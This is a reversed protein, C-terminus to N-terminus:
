SVTLLLYQLEGLRAFDGAPGLILLFLENLAHVQESAIPFLDSVMDAGFCETLDNSASRSYQSECLVWRWLENFYNLSLWM